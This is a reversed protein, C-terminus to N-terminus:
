FFTSGYNPFPYQKGTNNDTVDEVVWEAYHGQTDAATNPVNFGQMVSLNSTLNVMTVVAHDVADSPLSVTCSITDGPKVDFNKIGVQSAPYWEYWVYADQTMVQAACIDTKSM